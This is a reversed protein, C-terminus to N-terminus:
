VVEKTLTVTSLKPIEEATLQVNLTTNNIKLDDYDSVGQINLLINGLQAYSM